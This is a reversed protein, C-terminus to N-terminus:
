LDVMEALRAVSRVQIGMQSMETTWDSGHQTGATVIVTVHVGVRMLRMVDLVHRRELVGTIFVLSTGFGLKAPDLLGDSKGPGSVDARALRELLAMLKREDRGATLESVADVGTPTDRGVLRLGVAERRVTVLHHAISAAATVGLEASRRRGPLPHSARTLDLAIMVERAIGPQYKKVLLDGAAATATWHIARFQDGSEYERVGVVRTPDDYLPTRVPILPLPAGAAITLTELDVIRPYVLLHSAPSLTSQVRRLGFMDGTVALTPGLRHLGRATAVFEATHAGAEGARLSTVWRVNEGLQFPVLDTLHVWPLSRGAVVQLDLCVRDGFMVVESHSRAGALRDLALPPKSWGIWAWLGLLVAIGLVPDVRTVMAIALVVIAPRLLRRV